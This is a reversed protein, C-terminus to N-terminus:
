DNAKHLYARIRGILAPAASAAVRSNIAELAAQVKPKLDPALHDVLQFCAALRLATNENITAMKVITETMWGIGRDTWLLKNNGALPMFLARSLTPHEIRFTPRHEEVVIQDFVDAHTGQGIISLYAAYASLHDKWNQYAEELLARRGPHDSLNICALASIKDTINWARRYHSEALNQTEPTNAETIIRLLVAKLGREQLGAKPDRAPRYTDTSEFVHVLARLYWEAAARLLQRRAHYRERYMPLYQRELSQEEVRLLYAKLGPSLSNDELISGFVRLWEESVGASPDHILKIREMDTLRRMAEVRNFADPDALVQRRLQAATASRDRFTGYFSYGRNFSLFAPAPVNKFAFNHTQETIEVVGGVGPIDHGSEDVAAFEIPFHFLGGSGSRTQEIAVQLTRTCADYRYEAEVRPYGITFLWERKFQSLDRGSVEQFCEFFQDSNANSGSYRSFYLNKGRRFTEPGLILRLMRIVEAAKVYTVGDVLEDPHNFGERVIRGQHGADEVALPGLLPARIADVQALRVCVPDFENALFQREVDVTFAENLWMDFPTEMTVDSGCQNHEFEHVIVGYAYKLRDDTTYEDILAADTVITTNGVNEMGGFNSKEMCITRYVDRQYEYEQTRGQWLVAKKLIEMPIAAGRRHGPPVLYELRVRRGSPYVIEDALVEWTGACAMFLYPAMPIDNEYTIVQRSQDGPKLAPRGDPHRRRSINGNSILHTYRADGELTTVFTCKATCDDFIPLIRQFGWQQCQSMYQQPCGPPTTDKYIGELITDSPVCRAATLVSFKEGIEVPHPLRVVLRHHDSRYEYSLPHGSPIRGGYPIDHITAAEGEPLWAVHLIELDRADLEIESLRKIATMSLVGIGEVIEDLFNLFIDVHRLKVPLRRFDKRRFMYQTM